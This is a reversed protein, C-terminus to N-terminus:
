ASHLNVAQESVQLARSHRVCADVRATGLPCLPFAAARQLESGQMCAQRMFAKLTKHLVSDYLGLSEYLADSLAPETLLLAYYNACDVLYQSSM